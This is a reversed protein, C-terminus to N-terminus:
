LKDGGIKKLAKLPSDKGKLNGDKLLIKLKEPDMGNDDSLL